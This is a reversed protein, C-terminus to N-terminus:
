CTENTEDIDDCILIKVNEHKERFRRIEDMIEEDSLNNTLMIHSSEIKENETQIAKRNDALFCDLKKMLFYGYVWFAVLVIALLVERM